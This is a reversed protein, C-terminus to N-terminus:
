TDVELSVPGPSLSILWMVFVVCVLVVVAVSLNDAWNRKDGPADPAGLARLTERPVNVLAHGLESVIFLLRPLAQKVRDWGPEGEFQWRIHDKLTELNM